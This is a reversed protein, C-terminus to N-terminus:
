KDTHRKIQWDTQNNTPRDNPRNTQQHTLRNTQWDISINAQRNNSKTSTQRNESKSQLNKRRTKFAYQPKWNVDIDTQSHWTHFDFTKIHIEFRQADFDEM